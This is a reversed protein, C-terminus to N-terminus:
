DDISQKNGIANGFNVTGYSILLPQRLEPYFHSAILSGIATVSFYAIIKPDSPYKGLVSNQEYHGPRDLGRETTYADAAHALIFYVASAKEAKTWSKPHPKLTACSCCFILSLILIKRM